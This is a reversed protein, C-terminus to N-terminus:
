YALSCPSLRIPRLKTVGIRFIQLAGTMTLAKGALTEFSRQNQSESSGRIGNQKRASAKLSGLRGMSPTSDCDNAIQGFLVPSAHIKDSQHQLFTKTLM